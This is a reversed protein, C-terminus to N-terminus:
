QQKLFTLIKKVQLDLNKVKQLQFILARKKGDTLGHYAKKANPDQNLLATLVEPEEVGLPNPDEEITFEIEQGIEVGSKQCKEKGVILFFNGDGLHNLGCPFRYDNITCQLRTKHQKSLTAVVEKPIFLYHYAGKRPDLRQIVATLQVKKMAFLYSFAFSFLTPIKQSSLM